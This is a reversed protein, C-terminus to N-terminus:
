LEAKVDGWRVGHEADAVAHSVAKPFMNKMADNMSSALHETAEKARDEPVHLLIEDHVTAVLQGYSRIREYCLLMATMMLEAATGQIVTNPARTYLEDETLKRRRGMITDIYGLKRARERIRDCWQSYVGFTRHYTKWAAKWFEHPQHVGANIAYHELKNAGMGYGLALMCNGQICVKGNRRIVLMGSPVQVCYVTGISETPKHISLQRTYTSQIAYILSNDKVNTSVGSTVAMAQMIDRTQKVSCSFAVSRSPLRHGDWFQAEELYIRGDIDTICRPLLKKDKTVYELVFKTLDNNKIDIRTCKGTSTNRKYTKQSPSLGLEKALQICRRIKRRKVFGFRIGYKDFSGDSVVMALFRTQAESLVYTKSMHGSCIIGCKGRGQLMDQYSTKTVVGNSSVWYMQHDPTACISVNKDEIEHLVENHKEIYAVPKVFSIEGGQGSFPINSFANNYRSSRVHENPTTKITCGVPLKYQAVEQGDYDKFPVWGDPTLVETDGSFCTKGVFRQDKNIKDVPVSYIASAMSKYIDGGERYVECMHPDKSFEAQLRLEIQSFDSVVLVHGRDSRFMNRFEKDRPYNQCNPARSSLRGTRTEGLTYSTHLRDTKMHRKEVLSDGYTDILKAIKKYELLAKIAPLSSYAAIATKSFAYSGKKTRPWDKLLDPKDHLYKELWEGMQKGSRMNVSGFFPDCRKHAARCKKEWSKIMNEHYSWDVPLGVLEMHAVVHQMRKLLTYVKILNYEVIKSEMEKAVKYTLFSDLGAYTIQGVELEPQNWNSTQFVKDVKVLFLRQVVYDLSHGIKTYQAIGTKDEDEEEEEHVDAQFPSYEAGTILQSMLMSCGINMDPFGAHTLHKIEFIANHAVFNRTTLLPRLIEIDSKIVDFVYSINTVPSYIQVLRIFSLLPCLGSQEDQEYLKGTEIDIGMLHPKIELLKGVVEKSDAANDIYVTKFDWNNFTSKFVRM